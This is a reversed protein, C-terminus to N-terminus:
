DYNTKLSIGHAALREKIILLSKKGLNIIGTPRRHSVLDKITLLGDDLLANRVRAEDFFVEQITKSLFEYDVGKLRVPLSVAKTAIKDGLHDCLKDFAASLDKMTEYRQREGNYPHNIMNLHLAYHQVEKDIVKNISYVMDLNILQENFYIFM